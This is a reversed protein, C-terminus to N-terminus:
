LRKITKRLITISYQLNIRNIFKNVKQTYDERTLVFITNGKDAKTLTIKNKALKNKYKKNIEM